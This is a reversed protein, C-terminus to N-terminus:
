QTKKRKQEAQKENPINMINLSARKVGLHRTNIHRKLIKTNDNHKNRKKVEVQDVRVHVCYIM